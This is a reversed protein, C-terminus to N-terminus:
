LTSDGERPIFEKHDYDAIPFVGPTFTMTTLEKIAIV